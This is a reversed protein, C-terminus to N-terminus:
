PSDETGTAIPSKRFKRIGMEVRGSRGDRTQGVPTRSARLSPSRGRQRSQEPVFTGGRIGCRSSPRCPREGRSRRSISCIRHRLLVLVPLLGALPPKVRGVSLADHVVPHPRAPGALLRPELPPCCWGHPPCATRRHVGNGAADGCTGSVNTDPGRAAKRLRRIKQTPLLGEFGGPQRLLGLTLGSENPPRWRANPPQQLRSVGHWVRGDRGTTWNSRTPLERRLIENNGQPATGLGNPVSEPAAGEKESTSRQFNEECM